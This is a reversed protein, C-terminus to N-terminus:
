FSIRQRFNELTFEDDGDILVRGTVVADLSEVDDGNYKINDIEIHTYPSINVKNFLYIDSTDLEVHMPYKGDEDAGSYSLEINGDQLTDDDQCNEYKILKRHVQTEGFNKTEQLGDINCYDTQKSFTTAEKSNIGDIHTKLVIALHSNLTDMQVRGLSSDNQSNSYSISTSKGIATARKKDSKANGCGQLIFFSSSLTLLTLTKTIYKKM